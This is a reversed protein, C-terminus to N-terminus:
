DGVWGRALKGLLLREEKARDRIKSSGRGPRRRAWEEWAEELEERGTNERAEECPVVGARGRKVGTM